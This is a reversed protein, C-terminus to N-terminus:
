YLTRALIEQQVFTDLDIFRATWGGLRVMVHPHKEPEKIAAELEGRDLLTISAQQGGGAWFASFLAEFKDRENELFKRSLKINTTAGGNAPPTRMISNLMATIGNKDNGAAPANCIAYSTGSLRGDPTAGTLRGMFHGSPNASAMALFDIGYERGAKHTEADLLRWLDSVMMDVEIIDNGYKPVNQLAKRIGEYGEFNADLATIVEDLTYLKNEFVVKKLAALADGANTYGHGMISAGLYRAGGNLIPKNRKICDDIVLSALLFVNNENHTDVVLRIYKALKRAHIEIHKVFTQYLEDFSAADSDRLAENLTKPVNWNTILLAPSIYGLVYEGCGVPYYMTAEENTIGFSEAVGPIIIDDNYFLPLTGTINLTDYSLKLVEKDMDEYLRVTFQPTVRNHLQEAKLAAKLFRDANETNRRGIGGMVLRCVTTDGNENIMEFFAKILEIAEDETLSGNDIEHAYIDGVAVDLWHIEYHREHTLLEFILILQLAEALTKPEHELLANINKKVTENSKEDAEKIYFKLTNEVAELALLLGKKFDGEPMSKVDSIYGPLGKKVMSDINNPTSFGSDFLFENKPDNRVKAMTGHIRWFADLEEIIVTEEDTLDTNYKASFDFCYGGNKGGTGIETRTEPTYNPFGYYRFMGAHVIHRKSCRGAFIDSDQLGSLLGPYIVKFCMGERIPIPADFYKKYTETFEVAQRIVKNIM